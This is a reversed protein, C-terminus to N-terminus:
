KAADKGEQKREDGASAGGAVGRTYERFQDAWDPPPAFRGADRLTQRQETAIGGHRLEVTHRRLGLSRVADDFLKKANAGDPGEEKASHQMAEWRNLFRRADEETWGLRDLLESNKKELQDRLYELALTTQRKAYELNAEDASAEATESSSAGKSATGPKGGGGPVGSPAGEQQGAVGQRSEAGSEGSDGPSTKEGGNAETGEGGKMGKEGKVGKEGEEATKTGAEGEGRENAQSGGEDGPTHSGSSGEGSRDARQGGGQEGGGSRDGATEGSSDSQHKSTSPSQAANNSKEGSADSAKDTHKPRDANQNQPAPSGKEDGDSKGEGPKSKM